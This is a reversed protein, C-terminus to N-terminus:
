RSALCNIAVQLQGGNDTRYDSSFMVHETRIKDEDGIGEM